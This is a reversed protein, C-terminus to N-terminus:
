FDSDDFWYVAKWVDGGHQRKLRFRARGTGTYANQENEIISLNFNRVIFATTDTTDMEVVFNWDLNIQQVNQFLRYSTNMETARDWSFEQGKEFDYYTFVFNPAFLRGYLNTDRLEYANKFLKFYGNINTPNGLSNFSNLGDPDYKPAFPNCSLGLGFLLLILFPLCSKM